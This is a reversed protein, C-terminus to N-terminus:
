QTEPGAGIAINMCGKHRAEHDEGAETIQAIDRMFLSDEM